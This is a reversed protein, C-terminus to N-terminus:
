SSIKKVKNVQLVAESIYVIKYSPYIFINNLAHKNADKSTVFFKLAAENTKPNKALYKYM